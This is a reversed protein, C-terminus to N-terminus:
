DPSSVVLQFNFVGAVGVDRRLQDSFLCYMRTRAAIWDGRVPEKKAGRWGSAKSGFQDCGFGLCAALGDRHIGDKAM